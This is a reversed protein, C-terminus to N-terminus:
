VGEKELTSHEIIVGSALEIYPLLYDVQIVKGVIEDNKIPKEIQSNLGGVFLDLRHIEHTNLNECKHYNGEKFYSLVRFKM